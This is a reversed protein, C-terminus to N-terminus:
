GHPTRSKTIYNIIYSYQNKETIEGFMLAYM